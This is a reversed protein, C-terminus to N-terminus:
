SVALDHVIRWYKQDLLLLERLLGNLQLNCYAAPKGMDRTVQAVQYNGSLGLTPSTVTVLDEPLFTGPATDDKGELTITVVAANQLNNLAGQAALNLTAMDTITPQLDTSEMLGIEELSTWDCAVTQIQQGQVHLVNVETSYDTITQCSILNTTGETFQVNRVGRGFAEAFDLTLNTNVRYVWGISNCVTQIAAQLTQSTVTCDTLFLPSVTVTTGPEVGPEVLYSSSPFSGPPINVLDVGTFTALSGATIGCWYKRLLYAIAAQPTMGTLSEFDIVRNNLLIGADVGTLTVTLQDGLQREIRQLVGTYEKVGNRWIGVLGNPTINPNWVPITIQFQGPLMRYNVTYTGGQITLPYGEVYAQFPINPNGTEAGYFVHIALYQTAAPINLDGNWTCTVVAIGLQSPATLTVTAQGAKNTIAYAASLTGLTTSFYVPKDAYPLGTGPNTLTATILSTKPSGTGGQRYIIFPNPAATLGTALPVWAWTDGGCVMVSATKEVLVAGDLIQLYVLEPFPENTLDVTIQNNTATQNSILRNTGDGAYVLVTWGAQLGTVTLTNSTCLVIAAYIPDPPTSNVTGSPFYNLLQVTQYGVQAPDIPSMDWWYFYDTPDSAKTKTQYTTSNNYNASWSGVMFLPGSLSNNANISANTFVRLHRGSGFGVWLWKSIGYTPNEGPLANNLGTINNATYLQIGCYSPDGQWNDVNTLTESYICGNVTQTLPLGPGLEM